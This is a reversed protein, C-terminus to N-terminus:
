RQPRFSFTGDRSQEHLEDPCHQAPDGPPWTATSRRSSLSPFISHFYSHTVNHLFSDCVWPLYPDPFLTKQIGSDSPSPKLNFGVFRAHVAQCTFCPLFNACKVITSPASHRKTSTGLDRTTKTGTAEPCLALSLTTGRSCVSVM